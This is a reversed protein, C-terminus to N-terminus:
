TFVYASTFFRASKAIQSYSFTSIVKDVRKPVIAFGLQSKMCNYTGESSDRIKYEDSMEQASKQISSVMSSWGHPERKLFEEGNIYVAFDKLQDDYRITIYKRFKEPITIRAKQLAEMAAQQDAFTHNSNRNRDMWKAIRNKAITCERIVNRSFELKDRSNIEADFFLGVCGKRNPNLSNKGFVIVDNQTIGFRVGNGYIVNDINWFVEDKYKECMYKHGTFDTKMMLLFPLGLEDCLEMLAEGCFGRDAIVSKVNLKFQGLFSLMANGTTLDIKNGPSILYALPRGKNPGDAVVAQMVGVIERNNKSKAKGLQAEPNSKSQCDHNTGDLSLSVSKVGKEYNMEIWRCIFEHNNADSLHIAINNGSGFFSSYWSESYPNISFMLHNEMYKEMTNISNSNSLIFYMVLDMIANAALIGYVDILLQYVGIQTALGFILLFVGVCIKESPFQPPILSAHGSEHEKLIEDKCFIEYNYNPKMMPRGDESSSDTTIRGILIKKPNKGGGKTKDLLMVKGNCYYHAEPPVPM